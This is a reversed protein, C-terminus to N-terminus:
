FAVEKTCDLHIPHCAVLWGWGDPSGMAVLLPAGIIWALLGQGWFIAIATGLALFPGFPVMTKRDGGRLAMILIGVVGGLLFADALRARVQPDRGRGVM